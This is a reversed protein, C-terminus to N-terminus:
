NDDKTEAFNLNVNVVTGKPANISSSFSAGEEPALTAAPPDIQWSQIVHGDPGLAQAVIPPVKQNKQTKNKIKGELNLKTIGADFKLESRVEDFELGDGPYYIYLGIANYVPELSAWRRAIHQRDLILWILLLALAVAAVVSVTNRFSLAKLKKRLAPLNSGPPIPTTTEPIPDPEPPPSGVVDIERPTEAKWSHKCRACRVQRPGAAFLSAQVLYRTQCQPCVLIM